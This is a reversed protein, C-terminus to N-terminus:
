CTAQIDPDTILDKRDTAENAMVALLPILRRQAKPM